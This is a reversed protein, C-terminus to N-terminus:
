LRAARAHGTGGSSAPSRYRHLLQRLAHRPHESGARAPSGDARAYLRHHGLGVGRGHNGDAAHDAHHLGAHEHAAVLGLRADGRRAPLDIGMVGVAVRQVESEHSGVAAQNGADGRFVAGDGDIGVAGVGIHQIVVLGVAQGLAVHHVFVEGDLDAVSAAARGLGCDGHVHRAAIVNGRQCQALVVKGDGVVARIRHFAGDGVAARGPAVIRVGPMVQAVAEARVVVAIGNGANRVFVACQGNIRIGAFVGVGQVLVAFGNLLKGAVAVVHGLAHGHHDRVFVARMRFNRQVDGDLAGVIRGDDRGHGLM